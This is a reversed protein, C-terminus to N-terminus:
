NFYIHVHDLNQKMVLSSTKIETNSRERFYFEIEHARLWVQFQILGGKDNLKKNTKQTQSTKERGNVKTTASFTRALTHTYWKNHPFPFLSFFNM